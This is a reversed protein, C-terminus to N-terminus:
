GSHAVDELPQAVLRARLESAKLPRPARMRSGAQRPARPLSPAHRRGRQFARRRSLNDNTKYPHFLIIHFIPFLSSLITSIIIIVIIIPSLPLSLRLPLPLTLFHSITISYCLTLHRLLGDAGNTASGGVVM